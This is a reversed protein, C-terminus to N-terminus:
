ESPREKAVSASTLEGSTLDICKTGAGSPRIYVREGKQTLEEYWIRWFSGIPGVEGARYRRPRSISRYSYARERRGARYITVAPSDLDNAKCYEWQVVVVRQGDNSVFYTQLDVPASFSWLRRHPWASRRVSHVESRPDVVLEWEGNTSRLIQRQPPPYSTALLPSIVTILTVLIFFTTRLPSTSFDVILRRNRWNICSNARTRATIESAAPTPAHDSGTFQGAIRTVIRM